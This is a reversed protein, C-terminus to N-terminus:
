AVDRSRTVLELKNNSKVVEDRLEAFKKDVYKRMEKRMEKRLELRTLALAEAVAYFMVDSSVKAPESPQVAAPEHTKYVLEGAGSRQRYAGSAADMVRQFDEEEARQAACRAAHRECFAHYDSMARGLDRWHYVGGHRARAHDM